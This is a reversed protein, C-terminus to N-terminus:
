LPEKLEPQFPRVLQSICPVRDQYVETKKPTEKNKM